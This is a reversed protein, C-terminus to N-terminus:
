KLISTVIKTLYFDFNKIYSIKNKKFFFNIYHHAQMRRLWWNRSLFKFKSSVASTIKRYYTLNKELIFFNNSLYISYIAIRFDMWIDSYRKFKIKKIIKKFETRRVSICSHNPIYPWYTKFFKKKNKSYNKKKGVLIIPLDYIVNINKFKDFTNIVKKIKNKSYFDDSDLLFIIEGSSYKFAREYASIQNFSGYKGKKKNLILKVGKFKKVENISGDSSCDDHFIIEFRKFTQKKLSNICEFIFKKNNYNAILISAKIKKM